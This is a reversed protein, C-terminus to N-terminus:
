APNRLFHHYWYRLSGPWVPAMQAYADTSAVLLFIEALEGVTESVPLLKVRALLANTNVNRTSALQSFGVVCAPPEPRLTASGRELDLLVDLAPSCCM